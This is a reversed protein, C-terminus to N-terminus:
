SSPSLAASALPSRGVAARSAGVGAADGAAQRSPGIEPDVQAAAPRLASRTAEGPAAAAGALPVGALDLGRSVAYWAQAKALGWQAQRIMDETSDEDTITKKFNRFQRSFRTVMACM